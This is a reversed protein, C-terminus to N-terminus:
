GVLQFGLWLRSSSRPLSAKACVCCAPPKLHGIRQASIQGKFGSAHQTQALIRMKPGACTGGVALAISPWERICTLHLACATRNNRSNSGSSSNHNLRAIGRAFGRYMVRQCGLVDVVVDNAAETSSWRACVCLGLLNCATNARITKTRGQM